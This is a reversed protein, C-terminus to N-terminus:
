SYIIFIGYTSDGSISSQLANSLFVLRCRLSGSENEVTELMEKEVYKQLYPEIRESEDLYHNCIFIHEVGAYFMYHLWQKFEKITWKAYDEKYLRVRVVETLFYKPSKIAQTNNQLRSISLDFLSANSVAVTHVHNIKIEQKTTQRQMNGEGSPFIKVYGGTSFQKVCTSDPLCRCTDSRNCTVSSYHRRVMCENSDEYNALDKMREQM